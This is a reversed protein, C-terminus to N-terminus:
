CPPHGPVFHWSHETAFGNLGRQSKIYAAADEQRAFRLAKGAEWMWGHEPHWWRPMPPKNEPPEKMEILWAIDGHKKEALRLGHEVGQRALFVCNNNDWEGELVKSNHFDDMLYPLRGEVGAGVVAQRAALIIEAEEITAILEDNM